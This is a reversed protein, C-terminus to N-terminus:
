LDARHNARDGSRDRSADPVARAVVRGGGRAFQKRRTRLDRCQGGNTGEVGSSNAQSRSRARAPLGYLRATAHRKLVRNRVLANSPGCPVAPHAGTRDGARESCDDPRSQGAEIKALRERDRAKSEASWATNNDGDHIQAFQPVGEHTLAWPPKGGTSIYVDPWIRGPNLLTGARMSKTFRDPGCRTWVTLNCSTCQVMILRSGFASPITLKATTGTLVEGRHAGTIAHGAFFAGPMRKCCRCHCCRAMMARATMRYAM